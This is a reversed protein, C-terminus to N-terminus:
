SAALLATVDATLTKQDVPGTIKYRIVGDRDIIFSTPTAVIRYAVVANLNVDRWIPYTVGLKGTFDLITQADDATNVGVVVLGNANQKLYTKELAPMEVQCPTCAVYWFNLVVVKGRLSALQVSKGSLDLLTINPAYHGALPAAPAPTGTVGSAPQSAPTLLARALVVVTAVVLFVAIIRVVSNRDKLLGAIGPAPTGTTDSGTPPSDHEPIEM